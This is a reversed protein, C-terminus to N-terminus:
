RYLSTFLRTYLKGINQPTTAQTLIQAKLAWTSAIALLLFILKKM